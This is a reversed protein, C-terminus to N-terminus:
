EGEKKGQGLKIIGKLLSRVSYRIEKSRISNLLQITGVNLEIDSAPIAAFAPTAIARFFVEWEINYLAKLKYLTRVTIRNSGAEYKQIQQFTVGLLEGIAKQTYGHVLRLERLREGLQQDFENMMLVM